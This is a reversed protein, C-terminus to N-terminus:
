IRCSNPVYDNFSVNSVQCAWTITESSSNYSPTINLTISNASATTTISIVGDNSVSFLQVYRNLSSPLTLGIGSGNVTEKDAINRSIRTQLEAASVLIDTIKSRTIYEQLAPVSVIALLALIFLASLLELMTFGSKTKFM